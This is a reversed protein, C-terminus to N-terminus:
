RPRLLAPSRRVGARRQSGQRHRGESAVQGLDVADPFVIVPANGGMELALRTVTRSAGDMLLKGVRTSGTFSIKRCRPDDLFAQGIPHPEGNVLNAM